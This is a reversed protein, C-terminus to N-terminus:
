LNLLQQFYDMYFAVTNLNEKPSFLARLYFFILCVNMLHGSVHGWILASHTTPLSAVADGTCGSKDDIFGFQDSFFLVQVYNLTIPPVQLLLCCKVVLTEPLRKIKAKGM